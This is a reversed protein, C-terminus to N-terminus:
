AVINEHLHHRLLFLLLWLSEKHVIHEGCHSFFTHGEVMVRSMELPDLLFLVRFSRHEISPDSVAWLDDTLHMVMILISPVQFSDTTGLVTRDVVRDNHVIGEQCVDVM